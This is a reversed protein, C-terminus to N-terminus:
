EDNLLYANHGDLVYHKKGRTELIWIKRVSLYIEYKLAM